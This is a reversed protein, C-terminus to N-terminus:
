YDTVSIIHKNALATHAVRLWNGRVRYAISLGEGMVRFSKLWYKAHYYYLQKLNNNQKTVSVFVDRSYATGPSIALDDTITFMGGGGGGGGLRGLM